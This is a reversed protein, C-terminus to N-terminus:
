RVMRRLSARLEKEEGHQSHCSVCLPGGAQAKSLFQKGRDAFFSKASENQSEASLSDVGHCSACSERVGQTL